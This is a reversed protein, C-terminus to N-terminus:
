LYLLGPEPLTLMMVFSACTTNLWPQMKLTRHRTGQHVQCASGVAARAIIASAFTVDNLPNFSSIAQTSPQPHFRATFFTAFAFFLSYTVKNLLPPLSHDLSHSSLPCLSCLLKPNPTFDLVQDRKCKSQVFEWESVEMWVKKKKKCNRLWGMDCLKTISRFVEERNWKAVHAPLDNGEDNRGVALLM